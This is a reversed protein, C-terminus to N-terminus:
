CIVEFQTNIHSKYKCHIFMLSVLLPNYSGLAHLTENRSYLPQTMLRELLSISLGYTKAIKSKIIPGLQM